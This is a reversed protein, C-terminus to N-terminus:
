TSTLVWGYVSNRYKEWQTISCEWRMGMPTGNVDLLWGKKVRYVEDKVQHFEIENDESKGLLVHKREEDM